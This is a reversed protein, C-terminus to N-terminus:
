GGRAGVEQLRQLWRERQAPTLAGLGGILVAPAVTVGCLGLINRHLSKLAHARFFWRYAAAPMGMTVVVRARRGRLLGAPFRGGEAYAFGPRLAQELFGKLLAPMDGMWLPFLILWRSAWRLQEQQAAITAPVPGDYFQANRRLLPFDLESLRLERVEHGAARAGAAAAAALAHVFRAGEPDPHGDIIFIREGM